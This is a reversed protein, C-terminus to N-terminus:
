IVVLESNTNKWYGSYKGGYNLYFEEGKKVPKSTIIYVKQTIDNKLTKVNAPYAHNIYRGLCTSERADIIIDNNLHLFYSALEPAHKSIKRADSIWLITGNYDCVYEGKGYDKEAFLGKGARPIRSEKV